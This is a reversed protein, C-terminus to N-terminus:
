RHHHGSSTRGVITAELIQVTALLRQGAEASTLVAEAAASSRLLALAKLWEATGEQLFLRALDSECTIVDSEPPQMECHRRVKEFNTLTEVYWPRLDELNGEDRLDVAELLDHWTDTQWQSDRLTRARLRWREELSKRPQPM